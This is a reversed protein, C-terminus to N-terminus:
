EYGVGFAINLTFGYPSLTPAFSVRYGNFSKTNAGVFVSHGYFWRKFHPFVLFGLDMGSVLFRNKRFHKQEKHFLIRLKTESVVTSAQLRDDPNTVGLSIQKPPNGHFNIRAKGQGVSTTIFISKRKSGSLNYGVLFYISQYNSAPTTSHNLSFRYSAGIGVIFRDQKLTLLEIAPALYNNNLGPSGTSNLWQNMRSQDIGSYDISCLIYRAVLFEKKIKQEGRIVRYSTDNSFKSQANLVFPLAIFLFIIKKVFSIIIKKGSNVNPGHM